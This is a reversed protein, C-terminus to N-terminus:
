VSAAEQDIHSKFAEITETKYLSNIPKVQYNGSTRTATVENVSFFDFFTLNSVAAVTSLSAFVFTVTFFLVYFFKKM